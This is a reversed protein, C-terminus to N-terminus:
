SSGCHCNCVTSSQTGEEFELCEKSINVINLTIKIYNQFTGYSFKPSM